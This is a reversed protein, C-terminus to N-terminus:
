KIKLKKIGIGSGRAFIEKLSNKPPKKKHKPKIDEPEKPRKDKVTVDTKQYGMEILDDLRASLQHLRDM